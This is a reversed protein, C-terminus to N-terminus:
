LTAAVRPIVAGTDKQAIAAARLVKREKDDFVESIGIEGIYGARIDTGQSIM